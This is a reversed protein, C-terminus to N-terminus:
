TTTPPSPAYAAIAPSSVVPICQAGLGTAHPLIRAIAPPTEAVDCTSRSVICRSRMERPGPAMADGLHSDVFRRNGARTWRDRGDSGFWGSTTPAFVDRAMIRTRARVCSAASTRSRCDPLQAACRATDPSTRISSTAHLAACQALVGDALAWLRWQRLYREERRSSPRCEAVSEGRVFAQPTGTPATERDPGDLLNRGIPRTERRAVGGWREGAM